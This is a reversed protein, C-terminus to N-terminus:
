VNRLSREPTIARSEDGPSAPEDAGMQDLSKEASARIHTHEVRIVRTCMRPRELADVMWLEFDMEPVDGIWMEGAAERFTDVRDEVERRQDPNGIRINRGCMVYAGVNTSHERDELRRSSFRDTANDM